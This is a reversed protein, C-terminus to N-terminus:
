SHICLFTHVDDDALPGLASPVRLADLVCHHACAGHGHVGYVVYSHRFMRHLFAQLIAWFSNSNTSRRDFPDLAFLSSRLFFGHHSVLLLALTKCGARLRLLPFPQHVAWLLHFLKESLLYDAVHNSLFRPQREIKLSIIPSSRAFSSLSIRSLPAVGASM